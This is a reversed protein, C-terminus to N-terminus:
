NKKVDILEVDFILTSNPPIVGMDREGYALQPPIFLKAKGGPSLLSIGEEWGPIVQGVGLTFTLAEDREISSDFKEGDSLYGSYHVTVIDNSDAKEGSGEEIMVYQLGSPTTQIRTSDYDWPNVVPVPKAELLEVYLKIDTNPPVPGAGTPGYALNSPIVITRIGGPKMGVIGEDSGKIFEGSGLIIKAPQNHEKTSGISQSMRVSDGSWDEFLDASDLVNWISLHITVIDGMEAARGEGTEHDSYRLGSETTVVDNGCGTLLLLMV